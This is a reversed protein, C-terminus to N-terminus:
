KSDENDSSDNFDENESDVYVEPVVYLPSSPSYPSYRFTPSPKKQQFTRKIQRQFIAELEEQREEESLRRSVRPTQNTTHTSNSSTSRSITSYCGVSAISDFAVSDFNEDDNEYSYEDYEACEAYDDTDDYNYDQVYSQESSPHEQNNITTKQTSIGGGAYALNSVMTAFLVFLIITNM